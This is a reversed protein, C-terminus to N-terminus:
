QPEPPRASCTKGLVELLREMGALAVDRPMTRGGIEYGDEVIGRDPSVVQIRRATFPV